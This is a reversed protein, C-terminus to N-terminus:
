EGCIESTVGRMDGLHNIMIVFIGFLANSGMEGPM